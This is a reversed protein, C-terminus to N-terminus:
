TAGWNDEHPQTFGTGSGSSRLFDPLAPFDFGPGRSRYGPVRVVLGSLRDYSSWLKTFDSSWYYLIFSQVSSVHNSLCPLKWVRRKNYKYSNDINILKYRICYRPRLQVSMCCEFIIVFRSSAFIQLFTIRTWKLISNWCEGTTVSSAV